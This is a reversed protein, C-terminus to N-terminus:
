LCYKEINAHNNAVNLAHICLHKRLKCASLSLESRQKIVVLWEGHNANGFEFERQGGQRNLLAAGDIRGGLSVLVAQGRGVGNCSQALQRGLSQAHSIAIDGGQIDELAAKVRALGLQQRHEDYVQRERLGLAFRGQQCLKFVVRM